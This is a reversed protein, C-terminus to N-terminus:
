PMEIIRCDFEESSGIAGMVCPLHLILMIKLKGLIYVDGMVAGNESKSTLIEDM